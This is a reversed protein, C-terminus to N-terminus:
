AIGLREGHADFSEWEEGSVVWGAFPAGPGLLSRKAVQYTTVAKKAAHYSAGELPIAHGLVSLTTRSLEFLALKSLM